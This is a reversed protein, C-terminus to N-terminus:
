KELERSFREELGEKPTTEMIEIFLSLKKMLVRAENVGLVPGYMKQSGEISVDDLEYVGICYETVMPGECCSCDQPPYLICKVERGNAGQIDM